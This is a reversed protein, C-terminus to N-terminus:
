AASRQPFASHQAMLEDDAHGHLATGGTLTREITDRMLLKLQFDIRTVTADGEERRASFGLQRALALLPGNTSLTLGTLVEQGADAASEMLRHLLLRGLGHRRWADGVVIAFESIRPDEADRICRAVGLEQAVGHVNTVAILAMERTRDVDTLRELEGPLLTRGSMLRQYRTMVSLSSVFSRHLELDTAQIARIHVPTGDRLWTWDTAPLAGVSESRISALARM